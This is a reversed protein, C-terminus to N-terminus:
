IEDVIEIEIEDMPPLVLNSMALVADGAARYVQKVGAGPLLGWETLKYVRSPGQYTVSWAGNVNNYKIKVNNANLM